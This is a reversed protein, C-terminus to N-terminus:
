DDKSSNFNSIKTLSYVKQVVSLINLKSLHAPSKRNGSCIEEINWHKKVFLSRIENSSVSYPPGLEAKQQYEIVILLIRSYLPLFEGLRQVYIFRLDKPLAVLAARDYIYQINKFFNAELDFFDGCLININKGNYVEFKDQYKLTYNLKHERFFDGCAVPSLEVGLVKEHRRSSLWLLDLTKGCLPVFVNSKDLAIKSWYKKLLPNVEEQHFPIENEEWINLWDKTTLSEKKM